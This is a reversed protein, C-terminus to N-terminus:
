SLDNNDRWVSYEVGEGRLLMAARLLDAENIEIGHSCGKIRGESDTKVLKSRIGERALARRIKIAKGVTGVTIVTRSLDLVGEQVGADPHKIHPQLM